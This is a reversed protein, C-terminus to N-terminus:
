WYQKQLPGTLGVLRAQWDTAQQQPGGPELAERFELLARQLPACCLACRAIGVDLSALAGVRDGAAAALIALGFAAWAQGKANRLEPNLAQAEFFGDRALDMDGRALSIVGYLAAISAAAEQSGFPHPTAIRSQEALAAAGDLDGRALAICAGTFALTANGASSPNPDNAVQAEYACWASEVEGVALLAQMGHIESNVRWRNAFMHRGEGTVEASGALAAFNRSEVRLAEIPNGLTGEELQISASIARAIGAGVADGAIRAEAHSDALWRLASGANGRYYDIYALEYLVRAALRHARATNQRRAIELALQCRQTARQLQGLRRDLEGTGVVVEAVELSAPDSEGVLIGLSRFLRDAIDYSSYSEAIRALWGGSKLLREKSLSLRARHTFAFEWGDAWRILMSRSQRDRSAFLQRHEAEMHGCLIEYHACHIREALRM